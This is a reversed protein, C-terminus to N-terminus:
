VLSGNGGDGKRIERIIRDVTDILANLKEDTAKQADRLERFGREHVEAAKALALALVKHLARLEGIEEDHRVQHELM